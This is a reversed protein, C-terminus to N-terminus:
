DWPDKAQLTIIEHVDELIKGPNAIGQIERAQGMGEESGCFLM